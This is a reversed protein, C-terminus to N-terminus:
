GGSGGQPFENEPGQKTFQTLEQVTGLRSVTPKSYPLKGADTGITVAPDSVSEANGSASQSELKEQQVPTSTM